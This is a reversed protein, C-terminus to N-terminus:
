QTGVVYKLMCSKKEAIDSEIKQPRSKQNRPAPEEISKEEGNINDVNCDVVSRNTSM